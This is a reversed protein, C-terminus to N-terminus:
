LTISKEQQIKGGSIHDDTSLHQLLLLPQRPSSFYGLNAYLKSIKMARGTGFLAQCSNTQENM